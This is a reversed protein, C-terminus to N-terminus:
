IGCRKRNPTCGDEPWDDRGWCFTNHDLPVIHWIVPHGDDDVRSENEMAVRIYRDTHGLVEYKFTKRCDTETACGFIKREVIMYRKDATFTIAEPNRECVDDSSAEGWSGTLNAYLDVPQRSPATSCGILAAMTSILSIFNRM